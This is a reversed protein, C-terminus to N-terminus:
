LAQGSRAAAEARGANVQPYTVSPESKGLFACLERWGHGEFVNFELLRRRKEGTFYARVRTTHLSYAEEWNRHRFILAYNISASPLGYRRDFCDALSDRTAGFDDYGSIRSWHSKQSKVWSDLPRLNLVFKANPYQEALSEFRSSAPLDGAGGLMYYDFNDLLQWTLPNAWHGNDIDLRTLVECFSTTATRSLGIGFVKEESLVDISTARLRKAIASLLRAQPLKSITDSLADYRDLFMNIRQLALLLSLELAGATAVEIEDDLRLSRLRDLLKQHFVSRDGDPLARGAVILCREITSTSVPVITSLADRALAMEGMSVLATMRQRLGSEGASDFAPHALHELLESRSSKYGDGTPRAEIMARVLGVRSQLDDPETKILARFADEAGKWHNLKLLTKARAIHWQRPVNNVSQSVCHNWIELAERWDRREMAARAEAATAGENVDIV